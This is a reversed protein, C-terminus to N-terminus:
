KNFFGLYFKADNMIDQPPNMELLKQLTERAKDTNGLIGNIRGLALMGLFYFHTDKNKTISEYYKLAREYDKLGEASCGAGYQASPTLLFDKKERALFKDFYDLAENFRATNYNIVGLYYYAVRGPRTDGYKETLELFFNEAEQLRGINILNIAQTYLMEAEPNIKESPYLLYGIIFIVAIIGIGIWITTERHRVVFKIVKEMTRQFTDEKKVGRKMDRM